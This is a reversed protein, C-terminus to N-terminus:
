IPTARRQHIAFVDGKKILLRKKKDLEIEQRDSCGFEVFDGVKFGTSGPHVVTGRQSMKRKIHIGSDTVEPELEPEILMHNRVPVFKGDVEKGVIHRQRIAFYDRGEVKNMWDANRRYWVKQGVEIECKDGNFPKGVYKVFATLYKYEPKVKTQIWQDKPKLIYEGDPGKIDSRVPVLIDDWSEFDPDCLVYSAIPIIKDKRVACLVQDYAVKYYWTRNPHQGEVRVFNKQCITNFHFYIRDGVEIDKSIDSVFRYEFPSEQSYPPTGRHEQTVPRKTLYVPLSVVEGYCRVHKAPDFTVDLVLDEGNVGRYQVKDNFLTDTKFM